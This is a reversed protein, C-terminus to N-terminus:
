IELASPIFIFYIYYQMEHCYCFHLTPTGSRSSDIDVGSLFLIVLLLFQHSSILIQAPSQVTCYLVTCYLVASVPALQHPDTSTVTCYLVTCYLVTSCFSTRASSSRHQHSIGENDQIVPGHVLWCWCPLYSPNVTTNELQSM